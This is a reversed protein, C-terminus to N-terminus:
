RLVLAADATTATGATLTIGTATALTTQNNWYAGYYLGATDRYRVKWTGTPDLGGVLFDGNADTTATKVLVDNRYALVIMSPLPAGGAAATITGTITAAATNVALASDVDLNGGDTVTLPSTTSYKTSNGHYETLHVGTADTFRIRYNTGVAVSPITYDGNADTTVTTVGVVGDLLRVRVGALPTGTGDETVTGSITGTLPGIDITFTQTATHAIDAARPNSQNEDNRGWCTIAGNTTSACTHDRGPAVATHPGPQDTAQGENDHGWCDTAGAPTLACTHLPGAALATYPGVESESEGYYNGGWCHALGVPTLGCTHMDGVSLATYPGVMDDAEGFYNAGWCDIAGAPTLGCTHYMGAGLETYPGPQDHSQGYDNNGWCDAAGAPTLGCTHAMGADLETYPGPQDDTQGYSNDGWCDAGGATTLACTNYPGAVIASYPGTQDSAQGTTNDGWCDAAGDFAIACTHYDGASLSLPQGPWSATVTVPGYSGQTSPTGSLVGTAADLTLGGPLSGSTVAWSAGPVDGTFTHSYAAGEVGDVPAASVVSFPPAAGAPPSGVLAVLCQASAAITWLM